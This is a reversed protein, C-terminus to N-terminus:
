SIEKVNLFGALGLVARVRELDASDAGVIRIDLTKTTFLTISEHNIWVDALVKVAGTDTQFVLYKYGNHKTSVNTPLYPLLFAQISDITPDLLKAAQYTLNDGICHASFSSGLISGNITTFGYKNGTVIKENAM